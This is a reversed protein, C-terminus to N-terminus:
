WGSKFLDEDEDTWLWMVLLGLNVIVMFYGFWRLTPYEYEIVVTTGKQVSMAEQSWIFWLFASGMTAIPVRKEFTMWYGMFVVALGAIAWWTFYDM